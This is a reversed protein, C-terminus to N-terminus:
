QMNNYSRIALPHNAINTLTTSSRISADYLFNRSSRRLKLMTGEDKLTMLSILLCMAEGVM